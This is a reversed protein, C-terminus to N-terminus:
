LAEMYGCHQEIAGGAPPTLVVSLQQALAASAPTVYPNSLCSLIDQSVHGGTMSGSAIPNSLTVRFNVGITPASGANQIATSFYFHTTITYVTAPAFVLQSFNQTAITTTGLLANLTYSVGSTSILRGLATM